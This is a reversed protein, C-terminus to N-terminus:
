NGAVSAALVPLALALGACLVLGIVLTILGNRLPNPSVPSEPVIAEEYVNARLQRGPFRASRDSILESSVEGVTNVIQKAEVPDNGQYSLVIFSTNEVQEATLNDLLNASDMRLGLRRIAEQAVPRTDIAGAMVQSIKEVREPTPALPILQIKGSGMEQAPSREEGWVQASAEYTPTQLLSAVGVCAAVLLSLTATAVVLPAIRAM